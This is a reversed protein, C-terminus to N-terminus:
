TNCQARISARTQALTAALADALLQTAREQSMGYPLRVETGQKTVRVLLSDPPMGVELYVPESM